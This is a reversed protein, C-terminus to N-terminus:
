QIFLEPDLPIGQHIIEFHLHPGTSFGTSGVTGLPEGARVARGPEVLAEQLHAYVSTYEREHHVRVSLGYLPDREVAAVVGDASSRVPRGFPAAIDLGRHFSRSGTMPHRRYGYPSSFVGEPLPNQFHPRLFLDRERRTFDEGPIFRLIGPSNPADEPNPLVLRQARSSGSLRRTVEEELPTEPHPYLFIGPQSPISLLSGPSIEPRSLRNLTAITSYPIMLRTALSFLTDERSPAYHLIQLPPLSEEQAQSHRYEALMEQHQLYLPDDRDLRLMVEQAGFSQDEELLLLLPIFFILVHKGRFAARHHM